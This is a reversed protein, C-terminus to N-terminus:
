DVSYFYSVYLRVKVPDLRSRFQPRCEDARRLAFSLHYLLLVTQRMVHVSTYL